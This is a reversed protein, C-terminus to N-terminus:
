KKRWLKLRATRTSVINFAINSADADEIGAERIMRRLEDHKRLTAVLDREERARMAPRPNVIGM